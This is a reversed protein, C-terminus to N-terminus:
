SFTNILEQACACVRKDDSKLAANLHSLIDLASFVEKSIKQAKEPASLLTGAAVLVRYYPEPQEALNFSVLIDSIFAALQSAVASADGSILADCASDSFSAAAYAALTSQALCINKNTSLVAGISSAANLMAPIESCALKRTARAKFINCFLRLTCLVVSLEDPLDLVHKTASEIITRGERCSEFRKAVDPHLVALRCMDICCFVRNPPWSTILHSLLGIQADTVESVHYRSTEKITVELVKLERKQDSSLLSINSNAFEEIKLVIRDISGVEFFGLSGIRCPFHQSTTSPRSNVNHQVVDPCRTGNIKGATAFGSPDGVGTFTTRHNVDGSGSEHGATGLITPQQGSRQVVYDAVQNLYSQPLMYEDIFAQATTFPNDGNNYGIKLNRVTGDNAELEIPFVHDYRVNNITGSDRSGTVEGIEVWTAAAVSWQAAIAKMDKRFMQVQGESKGIQSVRQNWDPLKMIDVDSPGHKQTDQAAKVAEHFWLIVDEPAARSREKTWIRVVHDQCATAFDGNPLAAVCWLGEPHQLTQAAINSKWLICSGTEDISVVNGDPLTCVSLIFPGAVDGKGGGDGRNPHAMIILADGDFSWLRLTGDNSSSVFGLDPVLSLSRVPGDHDKCTRILSGSADWIRIECDVIKNGDQHGTSGTAIYGNPLGLVCVGNFHGSLTAVCACEKASKMDWIKCTGDWSGSLLKGCATWGLSIVGGEHGSLVSVPSDGDEGYIRVMKDLSGTVIGGLPCLQPASGASVACVCVVWHNAGRLVRKVEFFDSSDVGGDVREWVKALSDQGGTVLRNGQDDLACVCRVPSGHLCEASLVFDSSNKSM